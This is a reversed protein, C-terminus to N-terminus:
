HLLLLKPFMFKSGSYRAVGYFVGVELRPFYKRSTWVCSYHLQQIQEYRKLEEARLVAIIRAAIIAVM